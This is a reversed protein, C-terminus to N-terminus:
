LCTANFDKTCGAICVYQYHLMRTLLNYCCVEFWITYAESLPTPQSKCCAYKPIEYPYPPNTPLLTLHDTQTDQEHKRCLFGYRCDSFRWNFEGCVKRLAESVSNQVKYHYSPEDGIVRVQLELYSIRDHLTVQWFPKIFFSTLDSYQCVNECLEFTDANDHLLQVILAGFLGRPITGFTFEILLPEVESHICRGNLAFASPKGYEKNAFVNKKNCPPLLNPIFYVDEMTKLPAIVKLYMLLNVFSSLELGGLDLKVKRLLKMSCIGKDLEELLYSNYLDDANHIYKCMIIKTLNLFLWEPNTIVYNNMGDVESFYLLMGFLHYFKLIEKIQWIDMQRHSPMIRDCINKVETLPICVKNQNRLELELIFWAIPIEYQAKKRLIENSQERISQVTEATECKLDEHQERSITNDVPIVYNRGSKCWIVLVDKDHITKILQKVEENIKYLEEKYKEGFKEMLVDSCTGIIGVVPKPHEDETVKKIIEPYFDDQKMASVKISSLLCKLLHMNTYKLNHKDYNYGECKYQATVLNDLCDKGDSINMVIFTIATASNIAPLMNIFEPQGGTDLLTFVDWTDPITEVLQLVPATVNDTYAVMQEEISIPKNAPVSDESNKTDDSLTSPAYNFTPALFQDDPIGELGVDPANDIDAELDTVTEVTQKNEQADNDSDYQDTCAVQSIIEHDSNESSNNISSKTKNSDVKSQLKRILRNTIHQTELKSDLNIWDTGVVNVKDSILVQQSDAAPTSKYITQHAENRLLRSFSSKGAKAAGCFIIKAHRVNITLGENKAQLLMQRLLM